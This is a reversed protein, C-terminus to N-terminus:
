IITQVHLLLLLLLLIALLLARLAARSATYTPICKEAASCEVCVTYILTISYLRVRALCYFFNGLGVAIINDVFLM